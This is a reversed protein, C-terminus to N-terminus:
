VVDIVECAGFALTTGEFQRGFPGEFGGNKDPFILRVVDRGCERSARLEVPVSCLGTVGSQGPELRGGAKILRVASWFIKQVLGPDLPFVIELDPHGFSEVLGHTHFNPFEDPLEPAVGHVYFGCKEIMEDQWRLLPELDSM